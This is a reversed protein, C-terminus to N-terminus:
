EVFSSGEEGKVKKYFGCKRCEVIKDAYRGQVENGCLTAVARWCRRGLNKGNNYEGDPLAPLLAASCACVLHVNEGGPERGCAMHEWCNIKKM